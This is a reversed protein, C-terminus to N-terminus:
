STQSFIIGSVADGNYLGDSFTRFRTNFAGDFGRANIQAGQSGYYSVDVGKTINALRNYDNVGIRKRIRQNNIVAVVSPAETIKQQIKSASVVIEDLDLTIPKLFFALGTIKNAKLINTTEQELEIGIKNSFSSNSTNSINNDSDSIYLEIKESEYGIYEARIIYKGLPIDNIQYDGNFDSTAGMSTGEIIVNAGILPENKGFIKGSISGSM